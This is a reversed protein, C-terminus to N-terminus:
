ALWKIMRVRNGPCDSRFEVVDMTQRMLFIGMGHDRMQKPDPITTADPDFPEGDDEIEVVVAQPCVICRLRIKDAGKNPSGHKYANTLAEGVAIKIDCLTEGSAGAEMAAKSVRDRLVAILLPDSAAVHEFTKWGTFEAHSEPRERAPPRIRARELGFTQEFGSMSIVRAVCDSVDALELAIGAQECLRRSQLLARLGSSDMMSVEGLKIILRGPARSIAERVAEVVQHANNYCIDSNIKIRHPRESAEQGSDAPELQSIISPNM